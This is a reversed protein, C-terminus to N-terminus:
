RCTSVLRSKISTHMYGVLECAVIANTSEYYIKGSCLLGKTANKPKTPDDLVEVFSGVALDALDSVVLPHRLLSKPTIVILPKRVTRKM